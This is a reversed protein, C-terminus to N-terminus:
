RLSLPSHLVAGAAGPRNIFVYKNKHKGPYMKHGNNGNVINAEPVGEVVHLDEDKHHIGETGVGGEDVLVQGRLLNPM